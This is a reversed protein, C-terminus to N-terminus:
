NLSTRISKLTSHYEEQLVHYQTQDKALLAFVSMKGTQYEKRIEVYRVYGDTLADYGYSMKLVSSNLDIVMDHYGNGQSLDLSNLNIDLLASSEIEKPLFVYIYADANKFKFLWSSTSINAKVPYVDEPLLISTQGRQYQRKLEPPNNPNMWQTEETSDIGSIDMIKRDQVESTAPPKIPANETKNNIQKQEVVTSQAKEAKTACATLFGTLLVAIVTTVRM